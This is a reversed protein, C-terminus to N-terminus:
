LLTSLYIISITTSRVYLSNYIFLHIVHRLYKLSIWYYGFTCSRGMYNTHCCCTDGIVGSGKGLKGPVEKGWKGNKQRRSEREREIGGKGKSKGM